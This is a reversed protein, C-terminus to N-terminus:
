RSAAGKVDRAAPLGNSSTAQTAARVIADAMAEAALGGILSVNPEGELSGMALSFITDGDAPTHAPNIARAYGDHAMQAMKQAQVKTLRANTAVVGITTNEGARPGVNVGSRMIRRADALSKGDPTRVGAVVQGTAPDIIDGVANVAVIAAVILGNPLVIASTGIGAKMARERGGLKGVTSGAGAGVNGEAVPGDTAAEAARYGCEANPRIKPDGGFWLDILSAAPVIPVRAVRADYGIGHEELYRMVGTSADLGFASGGSLVFAHVGQVSNVPDLLDTERTAPAGGRVDVSGVAGTGTLIVTCGTPRGPMTYHGVKIGAVATLGKAAADPTPLTQGGLAVGWSLAAFTALTLRNMTHPSTSAGGEGIRGHAWAGM